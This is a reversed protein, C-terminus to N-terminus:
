LRSARPIPEIRLAEMDRKELNYDLQLKAFSIQETLHQQAAIEGKIFNNLRTFDLTRLFVSNIL